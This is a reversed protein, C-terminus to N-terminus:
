FFDCLSRIHLLEKLYGLWKLLILKVLYFFSSIGIFTRCVKAFGRFNRISLSEEGIYFEKLQKAVLDKHQQAVTDTSALIHHIWDDWNANLADVNSEFM